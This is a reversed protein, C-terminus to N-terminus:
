CNCNWSSFFLKANQQYPCYGPTRTHTHTIPLNSFFNQVQKTYKEKASHCNSIWLIYEQLTTSLKGLATLPFGFQYHHHHQHYHLYHCNMLSTHWGFYLLLITIFDTVFFSLLHCTHQILIERENGSASSSDLRRLQELCYVHMKPCTM